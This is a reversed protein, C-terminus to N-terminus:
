HAEVDVQNISFLDNLVDLNFRKQFDKIEHSYEIKEIFSGLSSFDQYFKMHNEILYSKYLLELTNNDNSNDILKEDYYSKFKDRNEVLYIYASWNEHRPYHAKEDDGWYTKTFLKGIDHYFAVDSLRNGYHSEMLNKATLMHNYLSLRHHPNEQDIDLEEKSIRKIKSHDTVIVQIEDWGEIVFPASFISVMKDYVDDPVPNERKLNREKCTEISALTFICKKFCEIKNLSRLFGIRRKRSMNTADYIVNKGNKLDEHVRKHLINFTEINGEKTQPLLFELRIEDSSHWAYGNKEYEKAITTKGSAPIEVLMILENM